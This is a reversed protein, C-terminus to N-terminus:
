WITETKKGNELVEMGLLSVNERALLVFCSSKTFIPFM